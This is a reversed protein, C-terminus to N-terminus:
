TTSMAEDTSAPMRHGPPRTRCQGLCALSISVGAVVGTTVAGGAVDFVLGGAVLFGGAGVVGIVPLHAGTTVVVSIRVANAAARGNGSSSKWTRARSASSAPRETSTAAGVPEPLVSTASYAM